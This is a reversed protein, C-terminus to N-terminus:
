GRGAGVTEFAVLLEAYAREHAAAARDWTYSAAVRLGGARLERRTAESRGVRELAAGLADGDGVPVLLASRGHSFTRRSSM